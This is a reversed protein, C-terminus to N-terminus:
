ATKPVNHCRFCFDARYNLDEDDGTLSAEHHHGFLKCMIVPDGIRSQRPAPDHCRLCFDFNFSAYGLGYEIHKHGILRCLWHM